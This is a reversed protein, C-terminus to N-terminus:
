GGGEMRGGDERMWRGEMWGGVMEGDRLSWSFFNGRLCASLQPCCGGRPPPHQFRLGAGAPGGARAREMPGVAGRPAGRPDAARPQRPPRAERHYLRSRARHQRSISPPGQQPTLSFLTFYPFLHLSLRSRTTKPRAERHNIGITRRREGL